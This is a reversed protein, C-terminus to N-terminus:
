PLQQLRYYRPAALPGSQSGDDLFSFDGNSSTLVNTFPTWAPPFLSPTWQPQFRSSALASWELLVGNTELNIRTIRVAPAPM